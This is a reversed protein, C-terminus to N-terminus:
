PATPATPASALPILSLSASATVAATILFPRLRPRRISM